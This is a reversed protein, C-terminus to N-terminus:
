PRRARKLCACLWVTGAGKDPGQTRGLSKLAHHIPAPFCVSNTYALRRRYYKLIIVVIYPRSSSSMCIAAVRYWISRSHATTGEKTKHSNTTGVSSMSRSEQTFASCPVMRIYCASDRPRRSDPRERIFTHIQLKYSLRRSVEQDDLHLYTAGFKRSGASADAPQCFGAM